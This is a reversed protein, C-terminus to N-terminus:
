INHKLTIRCDINEESGVVFIGFVMRLLSFQCSFEKIELGFCWRLWVSQLEARNSSWVTLRVILRNQGVNSEWARDPKTTTIHVQSMKPELWDACPGVKAAVIPGAYRIWYQCMIWWLDIWRVTMGCETWQQDNQHCPPKLLLTTENLFPCSPWFLLDSILSLCTCIGKYCILWKRYKISSDCSRSLCIIGMLCKMCHGSFLAWVYAPPMPAVHINLYWGETVFQSYSVIPISPDKSDSHVSLCHLPAHPLLWHIDWFLLTALCIWKRKKCMLLYTGPTQPAIVDLLNLLHVQQQNRFSTLIDETCLTGAESVTVPSRGLKFATKNSSGGSAGRMSTYKLTPNWLVAWGWREGGLLCGSQARLYPLQFHARVATLCKSSGVPATTSHSSSAAAFIHKNNAVNQMHSELKLPLHIYIYHKPQHLPIQMTTKTTATFERPGLCSSRVTQAPLNHKRKEPNMKTHIQKATTCQPNTLEFLPSVDHLSCMQMFHQWIIAPKSLNSNM